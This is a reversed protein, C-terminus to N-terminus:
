QYPPAFLHEYKRELRQAHFVCSRRMDILVVLPIGRTTFGAVAAIGERPLDAQRGVPNSLVWYIDDETFRKLASELVTPPGSPTTM